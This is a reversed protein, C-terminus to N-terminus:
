VEKKRTISNRFDALSTFVPVNEYSEGDHGSVYALIMGCNKGFMMDSVSDGVIISKSFDIDPYMEKAQLALGTKPKRCICNADTDHPCFYIGDIRGGAAHIEDLMYRHVRQLDTVTMIGRSIGRQNTVVVIRGFIHSLDRLAECVGDNFTFEHPHKVYDNPLHINIVGDRDLFLTWSSDFTESLNM